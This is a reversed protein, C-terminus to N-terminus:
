SLLGDLKLHHGTACCVPAAGNKLTTKREVFKDVVRAGGGSATQYVQFPTLNGLSQHPRETNYFEFYETLGLQLGSM